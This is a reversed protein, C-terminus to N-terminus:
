TADGYVIAFLQEADYHERMPGTIAQVVKDWSLKAGDPTNVMEGDLHRYLHNGALVLARIQDTPSIM